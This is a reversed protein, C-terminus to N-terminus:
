LLHSLTWIWYLLLSGIAAAGLSITLTRHVTRHGSWRWVAQMPQWVITTLLFVMGLAQITLLVLSAGAAIATWAQGSLWAEEAQTVNVELAQVVAVFMTPGQVLMITTLAVLVPVTFLTFIVFVLRAWVKLPAAQSSVGSQGLGRTLTAKMHSLIDPVGLLDTLAWYGDFRVFPFLQRVIDLDVLLVVMLLWEQGSAFYAGVTALAFLLSFYFGGLDTRVRGWRGLRYSDTTDTYFVPYILYIGVGIARARGGGYRLASAHGFEHCVAVALLLALVAVVAGPTVLADHIPSAFGHVAYLWWHAAGIMALLPALAIPHYLLQLCRTAPDIVRPGLLRLRINVSLPSPSGPDAAAEEPEDEEGREVIGLPILKRALMQDVHLGSVALQTDQSVLVAIEGATREGNAYQAVRYLPESVQIFKGRRRILWQGEQFASDRFTGMVDVDPARAPREPVPPVATIEPSKALM